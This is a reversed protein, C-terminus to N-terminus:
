QTHVPINSEQTTWDLWGAARLTQKETFRYYCNSM